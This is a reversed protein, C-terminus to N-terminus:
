FVLAVSVGGGRPGIFPAVSVPAVPVRLIEPPPLGLRRRLARNHQDVLQKAEDSNVPDLPIFLNGFVAGLGVGLTLGGGVLIQEEQTLGTGLSRSYIMVLLGATAVIGGVIPLAYKLARRTRFKEALDSRGLADYFAANALSRPEYAGQFAMLARVDDAGPRAFGILHRGYELEGALYSAPPQTAGPPPAAAPPAEAEPIAAVDPAPAPAPAPPEGALGHRAVLLAM